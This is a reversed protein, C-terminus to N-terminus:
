IFAWLSVGMVACGAVMGCAASLPGNKYAQTYLENLSIYTMIGAISAFLIGYVAASMFPMLMLWGILAGLPETLGSAFSWVFAKKRSGTAMYLPVSVAIGEPINHIAIAFVIPIALVPDILASVFTALGEPFNHIAIAFATAVGTKFMPRKPSDPILADIVGIFIMGGLFASLTILTGTKDGFAASLQVLGKKYIEVLSVFMMVGASFGLSVSLFRRGAGRAFFAAASGIGTALGAILTFCFAMLVNNM